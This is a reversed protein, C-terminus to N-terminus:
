RAAVRRAYAAPPFFALWIASGSVLCTLSTAALVPASEAVNGGSLRGFGFIAFGAVIASTAIGWLRFRDTVVPDALGLALRRRLLAHYRLSELAAWGFGAARTALGLYYWAGGDRAGSFGPTVAHGLLSAAFLAAAAAVACAATRSEPRFVRWTVVFIGLCGLDQAGLAGALLWGAAADSGALGRRAAVALPYGLAGMLVFSSGLALEPIQRSRRARALLRAGVVANALVMALFGLGILASV